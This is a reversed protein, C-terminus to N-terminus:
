IPGRPMEAWHTVAHAIEEDNSYIAGSVSIWDEGDHYGLWVPEDAGPAYVFITTDSDPMSETVAHWTITENM